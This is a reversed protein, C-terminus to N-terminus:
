MELNNEESKIDNPIIKIGKIGRKGTYVYESCGLELLETRFKKYSDNFSVAEYYTKLDKYYIRDKDNKTIQFNKLIKTTLSENSDDEFEYDNKIVVAHKKYNDLLIHILADCWKVDSCNSKIDPNGIKYKGLELLINGNEGNNVMEKLIKTRESIWEQSKFQKVTKFEICTELTDIPDIPPLDNVM